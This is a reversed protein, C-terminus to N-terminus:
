FFFFFFWNLHKNRLSVLIAARHCITNASPPVSCLFVCVYHPFPCFRQVNPDELFFFFSDWLFYCFNLAQTRVNIRQKHASGLWNNSSICVSQILYHSISLCVDSDEAQQRAHSINPFHIENQNDCLKCCKVQHYSHPLCTALCLFIYWRSLYM